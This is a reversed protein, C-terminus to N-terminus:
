PRRAQRKLVTETLIGLRSHLVSITKLGDILKMDKNNCTHQDVREQLIQLLDWVQNSLRDRVEMMTPDPHLRYEQEIAKGTDWVNVNPVVTPQQSSTDRLSMISGLEQDLGQLGQIVERDLEELEELVDQMTKPLDEEDHDEDGDEVVEEAVDEDESAPVTVIPTNGSILPALDAPDVDEGEDPELEEVYAPNWVIVPVRNM